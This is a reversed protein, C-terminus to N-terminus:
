LAHDKCFPTQPLVDLREEAIREGCTVCFGYEGADLRDFAAAIMRLELESAESIGALVEEDERETAQDEWDISDHSEIEESIEALKGRLEEQRAELEARRTADSKM